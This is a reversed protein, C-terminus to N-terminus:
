TLFYGRLCCGQQVLRQSLEEVAESEAEAEPLVLYVADCAPGLAIREPTADCCAANVFIWDFRARWQRLLAPMSEAVAAATTEQAIKGATLASLNPLGTEQIARTLSQKGALLEALGLATPLGLRQALAPRHLNADVVLTRVTGLRARTIALNLLVASTDIQPSPALFLLARSQGASENELNKVLLRYQESLPHEPQHLTVLEPAFREVAPRLLPSEPPFPRFVVTGLPVALPTADAGRTEPRQRLGARRESPEPAPKRPLTNPAGALVSASAEMPTERGGVEIFPIEEVIEAACPAEEPQFPRLGVASEQRQGRMTEARRLAERIRAMTCELNRM